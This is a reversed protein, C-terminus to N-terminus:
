HFTIIVPYIKGKQFRTPIRSEACERDNSVSANNNMNYVAIVICYMYSNM